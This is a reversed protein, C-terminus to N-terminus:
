GGWSDAETAGTSNSRRYNMMKRLGGGDRCSDIFAAILCAETQESVEECIDSVVAVNLWNNFGQDLCAQHLSTEEAETNTTTSKVICPTDATYREVAPFYITAWFEIDWIHRLVDELNTFSLPM